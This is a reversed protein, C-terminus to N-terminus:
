GKNQQKYVKMDKLMNMINLFDPDDTQIIDVIVRVFTTSYIFIGHSPLKM